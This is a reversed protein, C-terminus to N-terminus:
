KLLNNYNREIYIEPIHYSDIKKYNEEIAKIKSNYVEDNIFDLLSQISRFEDIFIIGDSNFFESVSRSGWYLPITKTAFCDLLKESFYGDQICNEIAFSFKYNDLGTNKSDIRNGTISGFIDVEDSFYNNISHRIKHGTAEQKFSAIMSVLKTKEESSKNVWFTGYPAFLGNDIQSIIERDFTLVKDFKKYNELIWDYIGPMIGKPELLWAIKKIGPQRIKDVFELKTDTIFVYESVIENKNWWSFNVGPMNIIDRGVFNTDILSIKKKIEM